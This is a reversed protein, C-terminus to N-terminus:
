SDGGGCCHIGEGQSIIVLGEMCEKRTKVMGEIGVM